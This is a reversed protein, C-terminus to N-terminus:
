EAKALHAEILESLNELTTAKTLREGNVFLSPTGSVALEKNGDMRSKLIADELAKDAMCKEFGPKDVGLMIAMQQLNLLFDKDYAWKNQTRFLTGLATKKKDEATCRVLAAGKLAPANLPFDRFVFQIKGTEIYKKEIEPFIKLHFDACHSCSLSAYETVTVKANKDGFVIDGPQAFAFKPNAPQAPPPPAEHTHGAHADANAKAAEQPQSAAPAEKEGAANLALFAGGAIVVVGAIVAYSVFKKM